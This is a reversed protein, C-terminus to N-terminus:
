HKHGSHDEPKAPRPAPLNRFAPHRDSGGTLVLAYILPGFPRAEKGNLLVLPTGEINLAMAAAIDLQLKKETAPSEICKKLKAVDTFPALSDYVLQTTKAKAAFLAEIAEHHKPDGELCLAAKAGICRAGDESKRTVGANCFGDLPFHRAEVSFLGKPASKSIEGITAHLMACHPCLPDTWETLRLPAKADGVVLHRAPAMVTPKAERYQLLLDSMAQASQEDLSAMFRELLDDRAPDGTPPGDFLSPDAPQPTPQPTTPTTPKEAVKHDPSTAPLTLKQEAHPTRMGPVLLVLFAAVAVAAAMAVGRVPESFGTSTTARWVIASWVIVLVYTGICGLCLAGAIASATGLAAISAIGALGTLRLSSSLGRGLHKEDVLAALPLVTALVGWILGWGAIPLQTSDHVVVAFESDWVASCNFTEDISCFPTGGVRALLLEAWQFLAWLANLFGFFVAGALLGRGAGETTVSPARSANDTM